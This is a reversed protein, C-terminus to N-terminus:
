RAEPWRVVGPVTARPEGPHGPACSFAEAFAPIHAMPGIVRFRPPSHPDTTVRLRELEPSSVTCWAQGWAVFLLQENTLGDVATPPTGHREEWRKYARHAQKLGGIDAINEGLTLEGNVHLGPEVEFAGWYDAVCQAREEFRDAVAPEWWERLQGTANFKRGQDDFGHTLEHGIAGGIGGYNLAAPFARHFFPPQLIGAPFVMENALPNYYANVTQPPM